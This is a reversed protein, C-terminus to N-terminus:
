VVAGSFGPHPHSQTDAQVYFVIMVIKVTALSFLTNKLQNGVERRLEIDFFSKRSTFYM